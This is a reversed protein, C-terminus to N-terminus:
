SKNHGPGTRTLASAGFGLREALETCRNMTSHSTQPGAIVTLRAPSERLDFHLGVCREPCSTVEAIDAVSHVASTTAFIADPRAFKDFITFLEIKTEMEDAATEIILDAGRIADEINDRTLLNAVAGHVPTEGSSREERLPAEESDHSHTDLLQRISSAADELTRVSFDELVIRYGARLARHAVFRGQVGAGIVAITHVSM